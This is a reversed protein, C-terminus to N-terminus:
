AFATDRAAPVFGEIIRSLEPLAEIVNRKASDRLRAYMKKATARSTAAARADTVSLLDNAVEPGHAVLYAGFSGRGSASWADHHPQLKALWQDLLSDVVEPVIGPKIAKVTAFAARVVLGKQKVQADILDVCQAIVHSRAPATGLYDILTM